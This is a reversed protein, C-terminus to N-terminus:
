LVFDGDPFAGRPFYDADDCSHVVHSVRHVGRVGILYKHRRMRWAAENGCGGFKLAM